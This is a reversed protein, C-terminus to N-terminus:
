SKLAAPFAKSKRGNQSRTETKCIKRQEDGAEAGEEEEDRETRSSGKSTTIVQLVRRELKAANLNKVILNM